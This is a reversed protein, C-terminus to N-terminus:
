PMAQFWATSDKGEKVILSRVRTPCLPIQEWGIHLQIRLPSCGTIGRAKTMM